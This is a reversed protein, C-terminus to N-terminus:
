NPDLKYNVTVVDQGKTASSYDLWQGSPQGTAMAVTDTGVTPVQGPNTAFIQAVSTPTGTDPIDGNKIRAVAEAVGAEANNRAKAERLDYGTLKTEVNLTSMLVIVIMTVVLLALMAIVLAIGREDRPRVDRHDM